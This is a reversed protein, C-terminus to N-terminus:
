LSPCGGSTCARYRPLLCSGPVLVWFAVNLDLKGNEPLPSENMLDTARGAPYVWRM